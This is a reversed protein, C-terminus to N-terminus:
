PASRSEAVAAAIREPIPPHSFLLWTAVPNPRLDAINSYALRRFVRVATSPDHTLRLAIADAEREFRRSLGNQIPLTLLGAVTVFAILLPLARVDAIGDARAWSWFWPRHSLWALLAFGILLGASSVILGKVVHNKVKHGLEHAVVFLTEDTDGNVLLTDYLVLQKSSGIGAVYANEATTRKSADAVLVEKVSVGAQDALALIQRTLVPDELPTFKNFLPAILIPWLFTLLVSLLSFAAWGFIWWWRPQWRVLGYFVIATIGAIVLGVGLSRVQDAIWAGFSQTSLGWDHAVVFGRVFGIPLSVLA